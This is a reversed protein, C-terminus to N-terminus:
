SYFFSFDTKELPIVIFKDVMGGLCAGTCFRNTLVFQVGQTESPKKEKRKEEKM